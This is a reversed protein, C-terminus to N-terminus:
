LLDEDHSGREREVGKGLSEDLLMTGLPAFTIGKVSTQALFILQLLM